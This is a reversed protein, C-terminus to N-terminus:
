LYKDLVAFHNESNEIQKSVDIQNRHLAEHVESIKVNKINHLKTYAGEFRIDKLVNLMKDSYAIPYVPVGYIWGLIMSHFRTAIVLSSEEIINLAEEINQKYYFHNIHSKFESPVDKTVTEVAEEDKERECFSMLTVKYDLKVFSIIIEIIKSFYDKDYKILSERLSPKIISIVVRKEKKANKKYKPSKTNLQY